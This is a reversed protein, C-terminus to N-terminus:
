GGYQNAFSCLSRAIRDANPSTAKYEVYWGEEVDRLRALDAAKVDALPKGFPDFMAEYQYCIFVRRPRQGRWPPWSFCARNRQATSPDAPSAPPPGSLLRM